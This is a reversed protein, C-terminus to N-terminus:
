QDSKKNREENRQKRELYEYVDIEEVRTTEDNDETFKFYRNVSIKEVDYPEEYSIIGLTDYDDPDGESSFYEVYIMYPMSKPYYPMTIPIMDDFLEAILRNYYRPGEPDNADICSIRESDTFKIRGNDYVDKFLSTKRKCQYVTKDEIKFAYNWIDDTDEIPTLPKGDILRMLIQKTFEISTGSHGDELLSKFAKLASEYCSCGYDFEGPKWDPNEKKCAIEIEREAWELMGM